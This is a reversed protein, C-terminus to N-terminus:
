FFKVSARYDGAANLQEIHQTQEAHKDRAATEDGGPPMFPPDAVGAPVAARGPEERKGHGEGHTARSPDGWIQFSAAPKAEAASRM